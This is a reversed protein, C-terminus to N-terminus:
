AAPLLEEVMARAAALDEARLLARRGEDEDLFYKALQKLRGLTARAPDGRENRAFLDQCADIYRLLAARRAAADVPPVPQGRLWAAIQTFVWPNKMAGRGIMLGHCGTERFTQAASEADVIDGNGIVPLSLRQVVAAIADLRREGGFLDARTRWHVTVADAGEEQAIWAIEPANRHEHDYGARMKVLLPLSVAARVAAVIRRVREPERMLASGGSHACVKRSPCGMNIDIASCGQDQLRAAAEALVAPERGYLQVVIPREDPDFAAMRLWRDEGRSVGAGPVFETWTMGVPGMARILRRFALDTVGEMPALVLAPEIRLPGISFALPLGRPGIEPAPRM